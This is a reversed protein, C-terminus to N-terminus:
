SHNITPVWNEISERLAERVPRMPFGVSALKDVNLVCNSRPTKAVRYFEEDDAFYEFERDPNLIEQIM